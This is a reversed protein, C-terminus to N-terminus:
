TVTISPCNSILRGVLLCTVAAEQTADEKVADVKAGQKYFANVPAITMLEQARIDVQYMYDEITSVLVPQVDYHLPSNSAPQGSVIVLTECLMQFALDKVEGMMAVCISLSEVIADRKIIYGEILDPKKTVRNLYWLQTLYLCTISHRVLDSGPIAGSAYNSIIGLMDDVFKTTNPFIDTQELEDLIDQVYLISAVRGLAIELVNDEDLTHLNLQENFM